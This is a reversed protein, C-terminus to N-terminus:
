PLQNQLEKLVATPESRKIQSSVRANKRACSIIHKNYNSLKWSSDYTCITKVACFPCKAECKIGTNSKEFKTLDESNITLTINKKQAFKKTREIFSLKLEEIKLIESKQVKRLKYEKVDEPLNLILIEHGLMFKFPTKKLNGREDIYSSDKLLDSFDTKNNVFREIEEITSKKICRLAAATDFGTAILINRIFGPYKVKKFNQLQSFILGERKMVASLIVSYFMFRDLDPDLCVCIDFPLYKFWLNHTSYTDM